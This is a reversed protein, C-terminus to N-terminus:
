DQLMSSIHYISPSGVIDATTVPGLMSMAILSILLIFANNSGLNYTVNSLLSVTNSSFPQLMSAYGDFWMSAYLAKSLGLNMSISSPSKKLFPSCSSTLCTLSLYMAFDSGNITITDVGFAGSPKNSLISFSDSSVHM